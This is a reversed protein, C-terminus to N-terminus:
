WIHQRTVSGHVIAHKINEVRYTYVQTYEKTKNVSVQEIKWVTYYDRTRLFVSSDIM